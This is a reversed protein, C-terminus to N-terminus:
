LSSGSQVGGLRRYRMRVLCVACFIVVLLAIGSSTSIQTSFFFGRPDGRLSENFFRNLASLLATWAAVAGSLLKAKENKPGSVNECVPPYTQNFIWVGVIVILFSAVAEQLQVPYRYLGGDDLVPFRVSWWPASAQDAVPLGYDDGNLHCGIRGVGLAAVGGLIGCDLAFPLRVRAHLSFAIGFVVAAFAGGYFTMPGFSFLAGTFDQFTTVEFQEVVISLARAGFWGSVYCVVFIQPLRDLFLQASEEGRRLAVRGAWQAIFFAVLAAAVFFFHWSPVEWGFLNFLIPRM